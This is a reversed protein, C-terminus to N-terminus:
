LTWNRTFDVTTQFRSRTSPSSLCSPSAWNFTILFFRLFKRCCVQVWTTWLIYCRSASDTMKAGVWRQLQQHMGILHSNHRFKICVHFALNWSISQEEHFIPISLYELLVVVTEPFKRGRQYDDINKAYCLPEKAYRTIEGQFEKGSFITQAGLETVKLFRRDLNSKDLNKIKGQM